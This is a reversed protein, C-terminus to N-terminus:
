DLASTVSGIDFVLTKGVVRSIPASLPAYELLNGATLADYTAIYSVTYAAAGTGYIVAAFTQANSSAALGIGSTAAAFTLAQRAYATDDVVASVETGSNADTPNTKMLALYTTVPATYAAVNHIHDLVKKELYDSMSM